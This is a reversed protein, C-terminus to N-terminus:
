SSMRLQVAAQQTDWGQQMHIRDFSLMLPRDLSALWFRGRKQWYTYFAPQDWGADYRGNRATLAVMVANSYNNQPDYLEATVTIGTMVEYDGDPYGGQLRKRFCWKMM